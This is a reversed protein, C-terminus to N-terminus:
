KINYKAFMEERLKDNTLILPIEENKGDSALYKVLTKIKDMGQKMGKEMGQEWAYDMQGIRDREAKEILDYKRRRIEDQTFISERRVAEKVMPEQMVIEELEKIKTKKDFYSTWRELSNMDKVAKQINWKPLEIFHMELDETLRKGSKKDYVGFSSHWNKEEAEDEFLVFDLINITVTRTLDSYKNGRKLDNYLRAWYYLSRKGFYKQKVVQIELNVKAGTAIERGVLDLRSEKGYEEVPDLERDIFDITQFTPTGEYKFVSNIFDLTIEPNEGFVAKFLADNLRNLNLIEM